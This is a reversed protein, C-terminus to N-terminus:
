YDGGQWASMEVPVINGSSNVVMFKGANNAGQNTNLKSSVANGVFATTAIQTTSTGATATPAVPTGTFVPSDKPALNQRSGFQFQEM